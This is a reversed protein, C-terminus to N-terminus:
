EAFPNVRGAPLTPAPVSETSTHLSQLRDLTAQDITGASISSIYSDDTSSSSLTNNILIVAGALCGIVFVFFIMFHFRKFVKGLPKFLSGVTLSNTKKSTDM